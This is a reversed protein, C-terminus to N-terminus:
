RYRRHIGKKYPKPTAKKTNYTSAIVKDGKVIVCGVPVEDQIYARIANSLAKRMFKEEYM